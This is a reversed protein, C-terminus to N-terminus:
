HFERGNNCIGNNLEYFFTVLKQSIGFLRNHGKYIAYIYLRFLISMSCMNQFKKSNTDKKFEYVNKYERIKILFIM